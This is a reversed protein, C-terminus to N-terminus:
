TAWPPAAPPPSILRGSDIADACARSRPSFEPDRGIGLVRGDAACADLVARLHGGGTATADVYRGGPRPALADLVQPLLVPVHVPSDAGDREAGAGDTM